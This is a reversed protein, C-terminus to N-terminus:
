AYAPQQRERGRSSNARAVYAPWISAPILVSGEFLRRATRVVSARKLMLAAGSGELDIAAEITGTPHEVVVEGSRTVPGGIMDALVSGPITAAAALCLAGTAAHSKHCSDPVLYRSRITGGQAPPSLLGIKPVVSKAVDGMGMRRGAELRLTELRRYLDRNADIEEATEGGTLGVDSAALLMMPMAYDVLSVRIGGIEESPLGSPLLKGTVAGAGDLFSMKIPAATGPVGPIAQSGTYVVKRGPTQIVQEVIVDTNVNRVKLTTEGEAAPWLGEEIAFPGVGALMNGCNPKMDVLAEAVSVQAFLYNIDAAADPSRDIIAVKSTQPYSGGLGDVQLPHPSGMVALLVKDRLEPDAPLDAAHFFPGRSTGGRMFVCPIRILDASM